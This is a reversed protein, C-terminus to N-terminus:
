ISGESLEITFIFWTLTVLVCNREKRFITFYMSTVYFIYVKDSVMLCEQLFTTPNMIPRIGKTTAKIM